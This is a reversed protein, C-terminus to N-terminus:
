KRLFRYANKYSNIKFKNEGHLEMLGALESFANAIEKNSM